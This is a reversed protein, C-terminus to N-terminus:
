NATVTIEVAHQLQGSSGQVTVIGTQFSPTNNQQPSSGGGGGGCSITGGLLCLSLGLMIGKLRSKNNRRLKRRQTLVFGAAFLFSAAMSGDPHFFDPKRRSAALTNATVTLTATGGPSVGGPSISCTTSSLSGSVSCSFSVSASYGALGAVTITDTVPSGRTISLSQTQAMMAFDPNTPGNWAAALAGADVSGLGTALDYGAGADYGIMGSPPCDTSGATCPVLNNGTTIDHFASPASAALGYLLPNVNGQRDNTQQVLLTILGAFTPAAVSTGGILTVDNNSQRYGNVCSSQSCILYGDHDASSSLSVDPVDRQGDSPVGSGTQWSPKTFLTSVGGGGAALSGDAATDNWATEPIYSLASGNNSNNTGSWYQTAGTADGESFETGGMGTVYPLSAPVDVAYGHTASKVPNNPDTSYDCDAPGSDGASAVITQGQANAQEAMGTLTSIDGASFDAECDGYSVSIVPALNQDVAYQLSDALANQSNVYILKANRAVAGSWEVDLNAEDVDNKVIGPDADGPVLIVQLDATPLNSVNRFTVVDYQDHHGSDKSLDSQGMIAISQGAGNIGNAYLGQVDYITAFDDPALFHNGSLDSTFHPQVSKVISRPRPRFDNLGSIAAVLGRFAGPLAPETVNAYHIQGDAVYQHIVTHFAAQMQAATGNFCIWTRSRAPIINSFGQHQLWGAVRSIDGPTLGFRNAYEEPTLWHHYNASSPDMQRLLLTHLSSQQAATLQFVLKVGPMQLSGGVPGRDWASQLGPRVNGQMRWSQADNITQPIRDARANEAPFLLWGVLWLFILPFRRPRSM